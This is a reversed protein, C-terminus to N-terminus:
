RSEPATSESIEFIDDCLDAPIGYVLQKLSAIVEFVPSIGPNGAAKSMLGKRMYKSSATVGQFVINFVSLPMRFRRELSEENERPGSAATEPRPKDFPWFYKEM